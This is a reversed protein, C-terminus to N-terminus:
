LSEGKREKGKREKRWAEREVRLCGRLDQPGLVKGLATALDRDVEGALVDAEVEGGGPAWGAAYTGATHTQANRTETENETETEWEESEWEESV